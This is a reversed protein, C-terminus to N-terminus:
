VVGTSERYADLARAVAAGREVDRRRQEVLQLEVAALATTIDFIDYYGIHGIRFMREDSSATAEPSPSESATACPSCSSRRTRRPGPHPDRDRDRLAGRRALVARAGDGQRRGQLGAWARRSPSVRELGRGPADRARRRAVRRHSPPLSRPAGTELAARLKEWDFYFRPTSSTAAREM